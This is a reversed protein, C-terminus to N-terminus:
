CIQKGARFTAALSHNDAKRYMGVRFSNQLPTITTAASRSDDIPAIVTIQPNWSSIEKALSHPGKGTSCSDLVLTTKPPLKEIAKHFAVSQATLSEHGLIISKSTGHGRIEIFPILNGQSLLTHILESLAEASNIELFLPTLGSQQLKLSTVQNERSDFFAGNSDGAETTQFIVACQQNRLTSLDQSRQICKKWCEKAPQQVRQMTEVFEPFGHEKATNQVKYEESYPVVGWKEITEVWHSQGRKAAELLALYRFNPSEPCPSQLLFEMTKTDEWIQPLLKDFHCQAHSNFFSPLYQTRKLNLEHEIITEVWSSYDPDEQYVCSSWKPPLKEFGALFYELTQSAHPAVGEIWINRVLTQIPARNVHVCFGPLHAQYSLIPIISSIAHKGAPTSHSRQVLALCLNQASLVGDKTHHLFHHILADLISYTAGLEGTQISDSLLQWSIEQAEQTPKGEMLARVIGYSTRKKNDPDAGACRFLANQLEKRNGMRGMAIADQCMLLVGTEGVEEGVIVIVDSLINTREKASVHTAILACTTSLIEKQRQKETSNYYVTTLMNVLHCIEDFPPSNMAKLISEFGSYKGYPKKDFIEFQQLAQEILTKFKSTGKLVIQAFVERLIQEREISSLQKEEQFTKMRLYLLPALDWRDNDIIFSWQTQLDLFLTSGGQLTKTAGNEACQVLNGKSYYHTVVASTGYGTIGMVCRRAWMSRGEFGQVWCRRVFRPLPTAPLQARM